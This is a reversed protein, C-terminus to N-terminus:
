KVKDVRWAYSIKDTIKDSLSNSFIVGDIVALVHAKTYVIYSGKRHKEVFRKITPRGGRSFAESAVSYGNFGCETFFSVIDFGEGRVRGACDLKQLASSYPINMALALAVVACDNEDGRKLGEARAGGDTLFIRM